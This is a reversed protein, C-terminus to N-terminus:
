TAVWLPLTVGTTASNTSSISIINAALTGISLNLAQGNGNLTVDSITLTGFGTGTIDTAPTEAPLDSSRTVRPL